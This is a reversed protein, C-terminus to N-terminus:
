LKDIGKGFADELGITGLEPVHVGDIAYGHRLDYKNSGVTEPLINCVLLIRKSELKDLIDAIKEVGTNKNIGYSLLKDPIIDLKVIRLALIVHLKRVIEKTVEENTKIIVGM